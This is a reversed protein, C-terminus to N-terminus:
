TFHLFASLNTYNNPNDISLGWIAHLCLCTHTSYWPILWGTRHNQYWLPAAPNWYSHPTKNCRIGILAQSCFVTRRERERDWPCISVRHIGRFANVLLWRSHAARWNLVGQYVVWIIRWNRIPWYMTVFILITLKCLIHLPDPFSTFGVKKCRSGSLTHTYPYRHYSLHFSHPSVSLLLIMGTYTHITRTRTPLFAWLPWIHFGTPATLLPSTLPLPYIARQYEPTQVKGAAKINM